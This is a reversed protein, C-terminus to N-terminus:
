QGTQDFRPPDDPYRLLVIDFAEASTQFGFERAEAEVHATDSASQQFSERRDLVLWHYHTIPRGIRDPLQALQPRRQLYQGVTEIDRDGVFHAAIRGTALVNGGHDRVASIHQKLWQGDADAPQRREESVSGYTQGVVDLLTPSSYPLQGVFLSLVLGTALAGAAHVTPSASAGRLAALWFLPLLASSYQFALSAAPKHDWVVLVLLPLVTPLMWRWGRVLSPLYCPLWLCLLFMVKDWRFLQGWFAGPRLLPSMMVQLANDGLAVFRGTQFEALGSFRYVLLFALACLFAATAWAAIRQKRGRFIATDGSRVAPNSQADAAGDWFICHLVKSACFLCVVVIVGEEMSMALVAAAVGWYVRRKELALLAALLLPIAMSIPHWGYTYALNMQGVAPQVLWAVSFLSAALPGYGFQRALGGIFLSSAALCTAQLVFVVQVNPFVLWLPVVSLLGPNFHDWFVPLVPTELLVGRGNVTNAIRQAFHGFDNFGLLFNSYYWNTQYLWWAGVFITLALSLLNSGTWWRGPAVGGPQSEGPLRPQPTLSRVLMAVSIGSWGALWLPEWFFPGLGSGAVVEAASMRAIAPVVPVLSLGVAAVALRLEGINARPPKRSAHLLLGCWVAAASFAFVWASQTALFPELTPPANALAVYGMVLHIRSSISTALMAWALAFGGAVMVLWGLTRGLDSNPVKRKKKM